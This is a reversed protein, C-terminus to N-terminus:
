PEEFNFFVVEIVLEEFIRDNITEIKHYNWCSSLYTQLNLMSGIM